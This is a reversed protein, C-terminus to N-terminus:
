NHRVARPAAAFIQFQHGHPELGRERCIRARLEALEPVDIPTVERTDVRVLLDCPKRGYVAMYQAQDDGSLIRQIVGAELLLKLTRYVTAKSVRHGKRHLAALLQEAEFVGDAEVVADLIRAREPTYKLGEARLKRRFVACLPEIIVPADDRPANDAM